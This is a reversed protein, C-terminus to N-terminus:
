RFCIGSNQLTPRLGGSSAAVTSWDGAHHIHRLRRGLETSVSGAGSVKSPVRCDCSVNASTLMAYEDIKGNSPFIHKADSMISMIITRALIYIFNIMTDVSFVLKFLSATIPPYNLLWRSRWFSGTSRHWLSMSVYIICLPLRIINSNVFYYVAHLSIRILPFRFMIVPLYSHKGLPFYRPTGAYIRGLSVLKLSLSRMRDAPSM